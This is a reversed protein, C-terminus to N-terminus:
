EKKLHWHYKCDPNETDGDIVDGIIRGHYHAVAGSGEVHTQGFSGDPGPYFPMTYNKLTSDTITLTEGTITVSLDDQAPCTTSATGKTLSRKGTYVGDYKHEPDAGLAPGAVLCIMGFILSLMLRREPRSKSRWHSTMKTGWGLAANLLLRDVAGEGPRTILM